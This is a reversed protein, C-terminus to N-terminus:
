EMFALTSCGIRRIAFIGTVAASMMSKAKLSAIAFMLYLFVILDHTNISGPPAVVSAISACVRIGFCPTRNQGLAECLGQHGPLALELLNNIVTSVENKALM